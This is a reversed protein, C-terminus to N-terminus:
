QNAPVWIRLVAEIPPLTTVPDGMESRLGTQIAEPATKVTMPFPVLSRWINADSKKM